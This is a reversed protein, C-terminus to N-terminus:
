QDKKLKRNSAPEAASVCAEQLQDNVESKNKGRTQEKRIKAEQMQRDHKLLIEEAKSWPSVTTRIILLVTEMLMALILGVLGGVLQQVDCVLPENVAEANM